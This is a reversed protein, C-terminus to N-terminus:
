EAFIAPRGPIAHRAKGRPDWVGTEEADHVGVPCGFERALFPAAHELYAKEDRPAAARALDEGKRRGFDDVAERALAAVDKMRERLPPDAAAREM